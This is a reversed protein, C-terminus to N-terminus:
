AAYFPIRCLAPRTIERQPKPYWIGKAPSKGPPIVLAGAGLPPLDYSVEFPALTLRGAAADGTQILVQNGNQDINYIPASPKAIQGPVLTAKGAAPQTPDNNLLFVFRTGDPAIRVGGFLSKPADKIECPGGEARLLQAENEHIFQAVGQAVSYKSGRAGWERIGANYDYSTTQGRSGWNGFHTGGVFVYPTLGGAGGLLSMWHIANFHRADSYHDDSLAGGITAFWGGQLETVFGPAKPQKARLSAMRHACGPAETLGVYYNDCDLVQSLKPDQSNRCEGTLCTFM